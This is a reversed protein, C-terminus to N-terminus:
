RTREKAKAHVRCVVDIALDLRVGDVYQEPNGGDEWTGLLRLAEAAVFEASAECKPEPFYLTPASVAADVHRACRDAGELVLAGCPCLGEAPTTAPPPTMTLLDAATTM